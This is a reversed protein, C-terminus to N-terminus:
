GASVWLFKTTFEECGSKGLISPIELLLQPNVDSAIEGGGVEERHNIPELSFDLARYLVGNHIYPHKSV